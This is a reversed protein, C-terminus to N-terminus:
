YCPLFHTKQKNTQTQTKETKKEIYYLYMELFWFTIMENLFPKILKM